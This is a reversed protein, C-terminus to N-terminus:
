CPAKKGERWTLKISARQEKRLQELETIQRQIQAIGKESEELQQNVHRLQRELRDIEGMKQRLERKKEEVEM